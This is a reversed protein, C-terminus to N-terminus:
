GLPASTSAVMNLLHLHTKENLSHLHSNQFTATSVTHTTMHMCFESSSVFLAGLNRTSVDFCTVELQWQVFRPSNTSSQLRHVVFFAAGARLDCARHRHLLPFTGPRLLVSCTYPAPLWLQSDAHFFNVGNDHRRQVANSLRLQARGTTAVVFFVVVQGCIHISICCASLINPCCRGFSIFMMMSEVCLAQDAGCLTAWSSGSGAQRLSWLSSLWRAAFTFPCSVSRFFFAILCALFAFM